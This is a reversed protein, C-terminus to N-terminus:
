SGESRDPQTPLISFAATFTEGPAVTRLGEGTVLADTPATMPEFSVIDDAVPAYVQAFPFGHDMRVTVSREGGVLVFEAGDAVDAFGQDVARDGLRFACRGVPTTRGTPLGRADAEIRRVAPLVVTWNARDGDLPGLYPHFGFAVPVAVDGTPTLTVHIQLADDRAVVLMVIRHAFPFATACAPGWAPFHITATLATGDDSPEVRWADPPPILGHIATGDALRPVGPLDDALRGERGAVVYRDRSLRNAWPHLFPIGVMADRLVPDDIRTERGLVERGHHRLSTCTMGGDSRYDATLIGSPSRLRM